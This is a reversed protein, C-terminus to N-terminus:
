VRVPDEERAGDDQRSGLGPVGGSGAGPGAVGVTGPGPLAGQVGGPVGSPGAGRSHFAGTSRDGDSGGDPGVGPDGGGDVGGDAGGDAGEGGDGRMWRSQREPLGEDPGELAPGSGADGRAAGGSSMDNHTTDGTDADSAPAEGAPTDGTGSDQTGGDNGNSEPSRTTSFAGTRAFRSLGWGLDHGIGQATIVLEGRAEGEEDKWVNVTPRGVVIVPDGKNLSALANTALKDWARVTYWQAELEEFVGNDRIRYQPVALRFRVIVQQRRTKFRRPETGLRGRLTITTSGTM